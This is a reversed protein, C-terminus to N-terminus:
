AGQDAIILGHQTAIATLGGPIIEAQASFFWKPGERVMDGIKIAVAGKFDNEDLLLRFVENNDDKNVMRFYMNRVQDFSQERENASYISLVFSIKVVDFPVGNLDIVISEDDGDGAGNRSDGQHRVLGDCATQSNYFVFDSDERTQDNKDLLFCSLDVDLSEKEFLKQDWGAGIVVNQLQPIKKRIDFYDGKVIMNESLHFDEAPIDPIDIDFNDSM